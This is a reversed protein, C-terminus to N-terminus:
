GSIAVRLICSITSSIRTFHPTVRTAISCRVPTSAIPSAETPMATEEGIWAIRGGRVVIAGRDIAHMGDEAIPLIRANHWIADTKM